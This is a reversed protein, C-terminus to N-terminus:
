LGRLPIPPEFGAEAFIPTRVAIHPFILRIRLCSTDLDENLSRCHTGHVPAAAHAGIV